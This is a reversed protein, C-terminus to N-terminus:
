VNTLDVVYDTPGPIHPRKVPRELVVEVEDDEERERKTIAPDQNEKIAEPKIRTMEPEKLNYSLGAPRTNWVGNISRQIEDLPRKVLPALIGGKKYKLPRPRPVGLIRNLSDESRYKFKFVALANGRGDLCITERYIPIQIASNKMVLGENAKPTFIERRSMRYVKVVLEGLQSIQETDDSSTMKRNVKEIEAFRFARGQPEGNSDFFHDGRIITVANNGRFGKETFLPGYNTERGDVRAFFGLSTDKHRHKGNVYIEFKFNTGTSSQIYVSMENPPSVDEPDLYEELAGIGGSSLVTVRIGPLHPLVAM